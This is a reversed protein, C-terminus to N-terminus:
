SLNRMKSLFSHSQHVAFTTDFFNVTSYQESRVEVASLSDIGYVSFPPAPDMPESLRLMRVFCKNVVDVLAELQAVPNATATQLLLILTNRPSAPTPMTLLSAPTKSSVLISRAPLKVMNTASPPLHTLSSMPAPTTPKDASNTSNNVQKVPSFPNPLM